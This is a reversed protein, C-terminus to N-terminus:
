SEAGGALKARRRAQAERNQNRREDSDRMDRYRAYNILQWGGDVPRIRRGENSPNIDLDSSEKDPSALKQLSDKVAKLPLRAVAALGVPSGFVFGNRDCSALLTIWLVRTNVDESWVSSLCLSSYLKTFM